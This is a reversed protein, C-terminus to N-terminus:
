RRSSKRGKSTTSDKAKTSVFQGKSNRPRQTKAPSRKTPGSPRVEKVPAKRPTRRSGTGLDPARGSRILDYLRAGDRAMMHNYFDRTQQTDYRASPPHGIRALYDRIDQDYVLLNGRRAYELIANYPSSGRVEHKMFLDVDDVFNQPDDFFGLIHRQNARITESNFSGAM